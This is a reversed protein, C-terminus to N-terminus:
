LTKRTAAYNVDIELNRRTTADLMLTDEIKETQILQIHPLATRQTERVYNLLCGAAAIAQPLHECEFVSLSQIGFQQQLLRVATNHDFEWAARYRM